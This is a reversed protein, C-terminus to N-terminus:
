KEAGKTQGLKLKVTALQRNLVALKATAGNPSPRGPMTTAGKRSQVDRSFAAIEDTLRALEAELTTVNTLENM